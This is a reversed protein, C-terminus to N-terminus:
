LGSADRTMERRIMTAEKYFDKMRLWSDRQNNDKLMEVYQKLVEKGNSFIYRYGRDKGLPQVELPIVDLKNSIAFVYAAVAQNTTAFCTKDAFIFLGSEMPRDHQQRLQLDELEILANMWSIFTSWPATEKSTRSGLFPRDWHEQRVTASYVYTKSQEGRISPDIDMPSVGKALLYAAFVPDKIALPEDSM